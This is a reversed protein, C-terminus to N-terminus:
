FFFLKGHSIVVCSKVPTFFIFIFTGEGVRAEARELYFSSRAPLELAGVSRWQASNESQVM